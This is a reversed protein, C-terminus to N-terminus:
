VTGNTEPLRLGYCRAATGGWLAAQEDTSLHASWREVIDFVQAYEAKLLCVPWDSGFMLRQAGFLELATDLYRRLEGADVMQDGVETVLGSVKCLVHPLAALRRLHERWQADGDGGVAPKGLHDLVLWHRDHRASFAPVDTLQPARVLVEYVQQRAQLAAVGRNFAADALVAPVDAEDQLLHRFGALKSQEHWRALRRQLDDARLDVWGIVAMIWDHERAFDLLFDTEDEAARAQVAICGAIDHAELLPRLQQPLHDRRLVDMGDGMWPYDAARYRWFHQHADIRTM